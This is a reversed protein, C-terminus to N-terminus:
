KKRRILMSTGANGGLGTIIATIVTFVNLDIEAFQYLGAILLITIGTQIFYSYKYVLHSDNSKADMYGAIHYFLGGFMAALALIINLDITTNM